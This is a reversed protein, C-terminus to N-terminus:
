YIGQYFNGAPDSFFRRYNNEIERQQKWMENHIERDQRDMAFLSTIIAGAYIITAFLNINNEQSITQMSRKNQFTDDLKINNTLTVSLYNDYFMPNLNTYNVKQNNEQYNYLQWRFSINKFIDSNEDAYIQSFIIFFMVWLVTIKKM